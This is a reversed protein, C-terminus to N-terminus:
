KPNVYLYGLAGKDFARSLSHDVLIFKGIKEVTLQMMLASGPPVTVTEANIMNPSVSNEYYVQDLIEGIIHFHSALNPGGDAFFIRINDNKTANLSFNPDTLGFAKGNFTVYTPQENLERQDDFIQNGKTGAVWKTYVESQGVYFEKDVHPLGNVPEVSIAGFMGLSIHTPVHGSACHYIFVGEHSANFSFSKSEGPAVQTYAAGGGTATAAHLDISHTHLSTAENVLHITVNDGIRVRLLPGPISGNFTYFQMTTGPEIEAVVEQTIITFSINKAPRIGVPPLINTPKRIISDVTVPKAPEPSIVAANGVVISGHMTNYHGPMSCYYTFVGEQDITFSFTVESQYGKLNAVMTSTENSQYTDVVFNHVLSEGAILKITIKSNQTVNLTPNVIDKINQSVGVFGHLYAKLEFYNETTDTAPGSSVSNVLLMGTISSCVLSIIVVVSIFSSIEKKSYEKM